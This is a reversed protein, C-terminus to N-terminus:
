GYNRFLKFAEDEPLENLVTAGAYKARIQDFLAKDPAIRGKYKAEFIGASGPKTYLAAKKLTARMDRRMLWDTLIRSCEDEVTPPMVIGGYDQAERNAKVWADAEAYAAGDGLFVDEGGHGYNRVQGIKKGKFWLDASYCNTEDSLRENHHINKLEIM